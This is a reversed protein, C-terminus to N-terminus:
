SSTRASARSCRGCIIMQPAVAYGRSMSKAANRSIASSTPAYRITSAACTMPRTAPPATRDGTGYASTTVHGYPVPNPHLGAAVLGSFHAMDVLLFAGVEDAVARFAPFDLQRPYASWGAIILKPQTELAKARDTALQEARDVEACGGYYRRGPYGEAYKNTLTSGLAALVAPSAFNESAILQLGGRLRDLEALVIGAIGPDTERLAGFDPGWYAQSM